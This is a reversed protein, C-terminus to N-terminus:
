RNAPKKIIRLAQASQNVCEEYNGAAKAKEAAAQHSKVNTVKVGTADKNATKLFNDLQELNGNCLADDALVPLSLTAVALALIMRKM